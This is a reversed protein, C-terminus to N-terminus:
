DTYIRSVTFRYAKYHSGNVDRFQYTVTYEDYLGTLLEYGIRDFIINCGVNDNEVAKLNIATEIGNEMIIGRLSVIASNDASHIFDLFKEPNFSTNIKM